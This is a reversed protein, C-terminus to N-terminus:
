NKAIKRADKLIECAKEYLGSKLSNYPFIARESIDLGDLNMLKKFILSFNTDLAYIEMLKNIAKAYKSLQTLDKDNIAKVFGSWIDPAINSLGSICGSGGACVNDIFHDDFGSYIEFHPHKPLVTKILDKTHSVNLVTDKIGKINKNADVLKLLVNANVDCTTRGPYNYIYIDGKTNKALTDYFDFINQDNAGFYYPMLAVAKAGLEHVYKLMELTEGFLMSTVGIKVPVRGAVKTVCYSALKKRDELSFASFEGTSGFLLLGDIGHKILYDWVRANGEFDLKENEDFISVTPTFIKAKM